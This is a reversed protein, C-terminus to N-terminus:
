QPLAGEECQLILFRERDDLPRVTKISYITGTNKDIFRKTKDVDDRTRITFNHTITYGAQAAIYVEQTKAHRKKIWVPEIDVWTIEEGGGADKIPQQQQLTFLKNFQAMNMIM